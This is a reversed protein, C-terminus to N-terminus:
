LDRIATQKFYLDLPPLGAAVEAVETGATGPLGLCLSEMSCCVTVTCTQQGALLIIWIGNHLAGHRHILTILKHTSVRGIGKVEQIVKLSSSTKNTVNQIHPETTLQEDLTIGLIKQTKNYSMICRWAPVPVAQLLIRSFLTAETKATKNADKNDGAKELFLPPVNNEAKRLAHHM